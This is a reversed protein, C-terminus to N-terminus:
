GCSLSLLLLSVVCEKSIIPLYAVDRCGYIRHGAITGVRNRHTVLILYANRLLRVVGIVAYARLVLKVGGHPEMAAALSALM